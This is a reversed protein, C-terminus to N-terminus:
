LYDVPIMIKVIYKTYDATSWYNRLQEIYVDDIITLANREIFALLKKFSYEYQTHFGNPTYISAYLGAKKIQVDTYEDPHSIRTYLNSMALFNGQQLADKPLIYGMLYENLLESSAFPYNHKAVLKIKEKLSSEPVSFPTAIYYEEAQEELTIKDFTIKDTTVNKIKELHNIKTQLNAINRQMIDIQVQYETQKRKYFIQLANVDRNQIYDAIEKLPIGLKRMNIIIDFIFYQELSYYRYGNEDIYSPKLINNREYYFLTQKSLKFLSAFEGISFYKEALKNM